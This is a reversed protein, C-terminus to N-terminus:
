IKVEGRHTPLPWGPRPQSPGMAPVPLSGTPLHRLPFTLSPLFGLHARATPQGSPLPQHPFLSLGGPSTAQPSWPHASGCPLPGVTKRKM